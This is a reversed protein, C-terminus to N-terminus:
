RERKINCYEGASRCGKCTMTGMDKDFGAIIAEVAEAKGNYKFSNVVSVRLGTTPYDFIHFFGSTAKVETSTNNGFCDITMKNNLTRDEIILDDFAVFGEGSFLLQVTATGNQITM